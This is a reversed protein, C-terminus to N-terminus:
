PELDLQCNAEASIQRERYVRILTSKEIKLKGDIPDLFFPLRRRGDLDAEAARKMQRSTLEIGLEALVARAQERDIYCPATM